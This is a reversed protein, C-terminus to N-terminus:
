TRAQPCILYRRPDDLIIITYLGDYIESGYLKALHTNPVSNLHEKYHTTIVTFLHTKRFHQLNGTNRGYLSGWYAALHRIADTRALVKEVQM